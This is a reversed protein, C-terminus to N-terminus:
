TSNLTKLLGIIATLFGIVAIALGVWNPKAKNDGATVAGVTNSQTSTSGLSIGINRLSFSGSQSKRLMALGIMCLVVGVVLIIM